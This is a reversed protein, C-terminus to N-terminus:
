DSHVLKYVTAGFVEWEGAIKSWGFNAVEAKPNTTPQCKEKPMECVVFLQNTITEPRQADIDIVPTEMKELFYQYGDEYNREAIVALNFKEKGAEQEIKKAVEISRQLQRNPPYKLPSNQLNVFFLLGLVVFLAIKGIDKTSQVIYQSIGGLLLFPASFFFGYYHDYIEQKYLGLGILSAALWLCLLGFASVIMALFTIKGVTENKGALLRTTIDQALEPMKPIAKWPRASVTTQREIFFTRMAAFNRWGHRADFIVIPSMLVLFLIIGYITNRVFHRVSESKRIKFFTLLWPVAVVPTLLLGLYHSQLTFAVGMGILPLWIFKREQWFKWIGWITLLSFFPMINPNWSSRSYIIVTPALAYFLAAIIGATKGFWVRAIYWVFFVTAVGLLAIQVSPGVPSYNAFFLAPAMLYYYLPGLYMNGISTGPGILIPDFNVLLRRVIIADRGEDGLFTMYESIRYLRLFAGVLLIVGLFIAEKPNQRIWNKIKLVIKGM